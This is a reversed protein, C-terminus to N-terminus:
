ASKIKFVHELPDIWDERIKVHFEAVHGQGDSIFPILSEGLVPDDWKCLFTDYHWHELTGSISEHAQLQLHLGGGEMRVTAEGLILSNYDGAYKELELSPRTDTARADNRQKRAKEETEKGEKELELYTQIWDQPPLGLLTDTLHMYLAGYASNPLKNTFIAIGFKEEPVFGLMSLMGDVGGGHRVM